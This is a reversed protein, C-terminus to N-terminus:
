VEDRIQQLGHDFMLVVDNVASDMHPARSLGNSSIFRSSPHVGFLYELRTVVMSNSNFVLLGGTGHLDRPYLYFLLM